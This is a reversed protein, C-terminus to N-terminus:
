ACFATSLESHFHNTETTILRIVFTRLSIASFRHLPLSGSVRSSDFRGYPANLFQLSRKFFRVWASSRSCGRFTVQVLVQLAYRLLGWPPCSRLPLNLSKSGPCNLHGDLNSRTPSSLTYMRDKRGFTSSNFALKVPM